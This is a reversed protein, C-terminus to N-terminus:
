TDTEEKRLTNIRTIKGTETERERERKGGGFWRENVVHIYVRAAAVAVPHRLSM